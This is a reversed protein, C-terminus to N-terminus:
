SVVFHSSKSCSRVKRWSYRQQDQSRKSDISDRPPLPISSQIPSNVPSSRNSLNEQAVEQFQNNENIEQDIDEIDQVQVSPVSVPETNEQNNTDKKVKPESANEPTQTAVPSLDYRRKFSTSDLFSMGSSGSFIDSVDSISM